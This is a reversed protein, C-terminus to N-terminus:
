DIKLFRLWTWATNYFKPRKDHALDEMETVAFTEKQSAEYLLWNM